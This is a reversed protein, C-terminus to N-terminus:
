GFKKLNCQLTHSSFPQSVVTALSKDAQVANEAKEMHFLKTAYALNTNSLKLSCGGKSKPLDFYYKSRIGSITSLSHGTQRKIQAISLGSQLLSAIFTTKATSLKKM